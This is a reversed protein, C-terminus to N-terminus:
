EFDGKMGALLAGLTLWNRETLEGAKQEDGERAASIIDRHDEVSHFGAVSSFKALSIRRVKPLIRELAEKLEPNAAAEVFIFHFLTDEELAVPANHQQLATLLRENTAELRELHEAQLRSCGLRAALGFLSAVVVFAHAADEERLPAVKTVSGPFAQILGEDELRKLAERVPTRSVGFSDALKADHIREGPALELSIIAEKLVIYVQDRLSM